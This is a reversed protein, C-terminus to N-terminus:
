ILWTDQGGTKATKSNAFEKLIPTVKRNILKEVLDSTEDFQASYASIDPKPKALKSPSKAKQHPTEFVGKM